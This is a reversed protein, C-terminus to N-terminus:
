GGRSGRKSEEAEILIELMGRLKLYVGTRPLLDLWRRALTTDGGKIAQQIATFLLECRRDQETSASLALEVIEKNDVMAPTASLMLAVSTIACRLGDALALLTDPDTRDRTQMLLLVRLVQLQSEKEMLRARAATLVDVEERRLQLGYLGATVKQWSEMFKEPASFDADVALDASTRCSRVVSLADSLKDARILDMARGIAAEIESLIDSM